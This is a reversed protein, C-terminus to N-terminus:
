LGDLEVPHAGALPTAGGEEEGALSRGNLVFVDPLLAARRSELSTRVAVVRHRGRARPAPVIRPLRLPNKISQRARRDFIM